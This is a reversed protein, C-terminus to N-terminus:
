KFSVEGDLELNAGAPTHDNKHITLTSTVYSVSGEPNDPDPNSLSILMDVDRISYDPPRYSARYKPQLKKKEKTIVAETATSAALCTGTTGASPLVCQQQPAGLTGPSRFFGSVGTSRLLLASLFGARMTLHRRKDLVNPGLRMGALRAARSGRSLGVVPSSSSTIFGLGHRKFMSSVATSSSRPVMAKVEVALLLALTLVLPLNTTAGCRM